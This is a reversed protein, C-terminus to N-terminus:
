RSSMLICLLLSYYGLTILTGYLSPPAFPVLPAKSSRWLFPLRPYDLCVARILVHFSYNPCHKPVKPPAVKVDYVTIKLGLLMPVTPILLM